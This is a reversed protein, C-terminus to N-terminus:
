TRVGLKPLLLQMILVFIAVVSVIWFWKPM